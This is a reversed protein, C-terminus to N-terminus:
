FPGRDDDLWTDDYTMDCLSLVAAPWMRAPNRHDYGGGGLVLMPKGIERAKQVAEFWERATVNLSGLPDSYHADVGCQLVLADPNYTKIDDVLRDVARLWDKGNTGADLPENIYDGDESDCGTGPYFGFGFQHVSATLVRNVGTYREEVGDGHHLDIDLYAVKDFRALLTNIGLAIDDVACFGSARHARAHHLGGSINFALDDGRCLVDAAAKTAGAIAKCADYMGLFPPTDSDGIGYKFKSKAGTSCQKVHEIYGGTHISLMDEDSADDFDCCSLGHANINSVANKLRLSNYPHTAGFSYNLSREHYFFNRDKQKNM